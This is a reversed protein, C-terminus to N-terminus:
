RKKLDGYTRNVTNGTINLVKKTVTIDGVTFDYGLNNPGVVGGSAIQGVM